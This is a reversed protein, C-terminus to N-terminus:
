SKKQAAPVSVFPPPSFLGLLSSDNRTWQTDADVPNYMNTETMQWCRFHTSWLFKARKRKSKFFFLNNMNNKFKSAVWWNVIQEMSILENMSFQFERLEFIKFISFGNKRNWFWCFYISITFLVIQMFQILRKSIIISRVFWNEYLTQFYIIGSFFCCHFLHCIITSLNLRSNQNCILTEIRWSFYLFFRGYFRTTFSWHDDILVTCQTPLFAPAVTGVHREATLSSHFSYTWPLCIWM